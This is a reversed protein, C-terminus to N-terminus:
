FEPPLAVADPLRDDITLLWRQGDVVLILDRVTIREVRGEISGVRLRDGQSVKYTKGELANTFWAQQYGNAEVVATLTTYQEAPLGGSESFVNRTVIPRYDALNNSALRNSDGEALGKEATRGNISVAEIALNISLMRTGAVPTLTMTRVHHLHPAKYFAYLLTTVQDLTGRCRLSFPLIRYGEYFRPPNSDVQKGALQVDEALENLWGLYLTRATETDAPLSANRLKQLRNKQKAFRKYQQKAELIERALREKKADAANVPAEYFERWAFDGITLVVMGAFVGLLLRRRKDNM